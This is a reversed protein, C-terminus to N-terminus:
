GTSATPRALSSAISVVPQNLERGGMSGLYSADGFSFVGGDAAVEWYGKGDPTSAIGVVPKDLTRGGMSGLYSADGFSFVGGDAAVEWYGKGDPTSAIGVVPKALPRGGMSGYYSSADGFSFVGGDAAVEWYGHGSSGWPYLLAELAPIAQYTAIINAPSPAPPFYFAGASAGSTFQFSLVASVPTALGKAFTAATPSAGLARLAQIVLSTSDPDTSGPTAVTNPYFSWGADADQGDSLFALAKQSVKSSLAGQAALGQVALSTSNTDPGAYSAPLGSCSNVSNDPSTWGGDACQESVLWNVAATTQSTGHVGAAGLAALALGQQYGGASYDTVQAETGFLGADKGMTEETALLRSVLDTGGFSQPNADLAEADLILLALEAPGDAGDVVVYSDVHSELYSLGARATSLDFNAASLALVSQATSSLNATSSGPSTPIFGEANFQHVLWLAARQAPLPQPLSPGRETSAARATSALSMFVLLGASVLVAMRCCLSKVTRAERAMVRSDGLRPPQSVV